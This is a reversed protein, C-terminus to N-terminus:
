GDIGGLDVPRPVVRFRAMLAEYEPGLKEALENLEQNLDTSGGRQEAQDVLDDLKVIDCYTKTKDKDGSIM